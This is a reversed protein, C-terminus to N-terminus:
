AGVERLAEIRFHNSTGGLLILTNQRLLWPLLGRFLGAYELHFLGSITTEDYNAAILPAQLCAVSSCHMNFTQYAEILQDPHPRDEADYVTVFAGNVLQLAYNLAKPKTKPGGPPVIVIQFRRDPNQKEIAEITERDHEECVLMIEIKSHPWNLRSLSNILDPVINAEHLLTVLVSYRPLEAPVVEDLPRLHPREFGRMAAFRLLACGIFFSSFAIQLVLATVGPSLTFALTLAVLLVSTCIGQWFNAGTRASALPRSVLLGSSARQVMEERLHNVLLARTVTPTTIVVDNREMNARVFNRFAQINSTPPSVLLVTRDDELRAWISNARILATRSQVKDVMPHSIEGAECFRVNLHTALTRYYAEETIDGSAILEGAGDTGNITAREVARKLVKESFGYFKLFECSPCWGDEAQLRRSLPMSVLSLVEDSHLYRTKTEGSLVEIIRYM